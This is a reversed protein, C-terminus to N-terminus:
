LDVPCGRIEGGRMGDALWFISLVLVFAALGAFELGDFPLLLAASPVGLISLVGLLIPVGCAACGAGLTGLLVGVASAGGTASSAGREADDRHERFHYTAMAVDVGLLVAVLVLLAGQIPGYASGVFPYLGVLIRARAGIALDGALAFGALPANLSLVFLSLGALATLLALLAYGPAGLVLRATRGMLRWDRRRIPLRRTVRNAVSM